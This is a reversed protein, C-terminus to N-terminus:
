KLYARLQNALTSVNPKKIIGLHNGDIEYSEVGGKVFQNWGYDQLFTVGHGWASHDKAKMLVVLGDYVTGSSSFDEMCKIFAQERFDALGGKGKPLIFKLRKKIFQKSKNLMSRQIGLPLLTDLLVVSSVEKNNAKLLKATEFALLGGFSIGALQYPGEPQQRCIAEYYSLALQEVSIDSEKGQMVDELFAQEQAVYIGYVPQTDGLSDALEQYINIGCLCFLPTATGKKQLPVVSSAGRVKDKSMGEVLQKITPSSFIDGISFKIGTAQEMNHVLSLTMLSDGGLDFFNDTIGVSPVKLIAGWVSVLSREFDDRPEVYEANVTMVDSTEPAPLAKRDVKGNATLPLKDLLIFKAPIMYDPLKEKLYGHLESGDIALGDLAMLYAVLVQEGSEDPWAAVVCQAVLDYQSIVSEIEGIEIRFGRVKVQFDLRGIYEINQDLNYRVLDGTRYLRTHKNASFPNVLFKEDSLVTNEYYGKAVGDGAIYLEGAVGIPVASLCENLVFMQTGVIPKGILIAKDEKLVPHVSSWVTTETPGYMNWLSACKPILQQALEYPLAEGGCLLKLNPDGLWNASNLLRYSAPTAQFVSIGELLAILAEGNVTAEYPAIRVSAGLILPLFLELAAIDFSITTVALLRDDATMGPREAMAQLFTTLGHHFIEVGKPRGTSGSTFIVYALDNDQLARFNPAGELEFASDDDLFIVSQFRGEPIKNRLETETLLVLPNADELIIAIRDAPQKPDIPVYAGGAQMIALLCSVMDASRDICVAVLVGPKVGLAYLQAALADVRTELGSYSLTKEGFQVAINDPNKQVQQKFLEVVSPVAEDRAYASCADPFLLAREGVTLLAVEAIKQSSDALFQQLLIVFHEVARERLIASDWVGLNFDFNLGYQSKDFSQNVQISLGERGAWNNGPIDAALKGLVNLPTTLEYETNLGSFVDPLATLINLVVEYAAKKASVFHDRYDRVEVIENQIKKVIDEFTDTSEVQVRNPCVEMFLGLADVYGRSRNLLPVGISLEKNLSVRHLFAILVSSFIVSVPLSNIRKNLLDQTEKDLQYSVRISQATKSNAPQNYFQVPEMPKEYHTGWFSEKDKFSDLERVSKKETLYDFFASSNLAPVENSQKLGLEQEYYDSLLQHIRNCSFGDTISHHQNLYFGFLNDSFQVLQAQYLCKDYKFRHQCWLQFGDSKEYASVSQNDCQVVALKNLQDILSFVRRGSAKNVRVAASFVSGQSFLRNFARVFGDVNIDGKIVLRTLVNNLPFESHIEDDMWFAEQRDTLFYTIEESGAM